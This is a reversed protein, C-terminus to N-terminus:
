FTQKLLSTIQEFLVSYHFSLNIGETDADEDDYQYYNQTDLDNDVEDPSMDSIKIVILFILHLM